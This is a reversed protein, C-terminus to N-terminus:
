YVIFVHVQEFGTEIVLVEGGYELDRAMASYDIYGALSDPISTTQETLEQAYDALSAYCGCYAEDAAKRAQDLDNFHALLAAGMDPHEEIFCAIQRVRELREYEGVRYSGFGEFDHIAYEEAGEVPSTALMADVQEQIGDMDQTADVWAGHLHGPNYAALDAVYIRIDTSM